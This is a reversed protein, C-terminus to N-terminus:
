WNCHNSISDYAEKATLETLCKRDDCGYYLISNPIIKEKLGRFQCPQCDLGKSIMTANNPPMCKVPDTCGYIIFTKVGLAAALHSIGGEEGIFIKTNKILGALGLLSYDTHYIERIEMDSCQEYRDVFINYLEDWKNWMKCTWNKKSSKWLIIDSKGKTEKYDINTVFKEPLQENNDRFWAKYEPYSGRKTTRCWKYDGKPIDKYNYIKDFNSKIINIVDPYGLSAPYGYVKGYRKRMEYVFPLSQIVNGIGSYIPVVPIM